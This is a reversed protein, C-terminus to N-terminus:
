DAGKRCIDVGIDPSSEAAAGTTFDFAIKLLPSEILISEVHVGPRNFGMGVISDNNVGIWPSDDGHSTGGVNM